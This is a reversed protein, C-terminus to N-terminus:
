RSQTRKKAIRQHRVKSRQRRSSEQRQQAQRTPPVQQEVVGQAPEAAEIGGHRDCSDAVVGDRCKVKGPQPIPAPTAQLFSVAIAWEIKM